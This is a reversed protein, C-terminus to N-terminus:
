TIEEFVFDPDNTVSIWRKHTEGSDTKELSEVDYAVGSCHTWRKENVIFTNGHNRICSKAKNSKAKTIKIASPNKDDSM